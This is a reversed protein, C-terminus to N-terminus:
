RSIITNIFFKLLFPIIDIIKAKHTENYKKVIDDTIIQANEAYIVAGSAQDYVISFNNKKAIETVIPNMKQLINQAETNERQQVEQHFANSAQQFSMAKTQFEKQKSMKDADSLFEQQKLYDSEFKKLEDQMKVLSDKKKNMEDELAKRAHRGEETKLIAEQVNIIGAKFPKSLATEVAKNKLEATTSQGSACFSNSFMFVTAVGLNLVKRRM